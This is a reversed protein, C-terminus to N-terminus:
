TPRLVKISAPYLYLAVIVSRMECLRAEIFKFQSSVNKTSILLQHLAHNEESSSISHPKLGATAKTLFQSLPKASHSYNLYHLYLLNLLRM